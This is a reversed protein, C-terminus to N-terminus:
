SVSGDSSISKKQFVGKEFSPDRQRSVFAVVDDIEHDQSYTGQARVLQDTAPPLFLLDGSGLLKDAGGADLVTRSDVKAAVKFSIRGPLNAKIIGTIVDVSPRQTALILHIGVARSLHALRAISTEIEKAAVLMLDALEDILLIIYPMKDPIGGGDEDAEGASDVKRSNYSQINRVGARACYDYRDEMEKILWALAMATKAANTIVPCLLHPLRHFSAMEVKKPDVMILKLEDPTRSYLLSMIISNICVTKGSGTAGAILLHPMATLDAIIPTGSIDKGIALPLHLKKNRFEPSDLMERLCVLNTNVNPIEIGIAAKGPIPALIRVSKAKMTLAIDNDLAKVKGVKVGPAIQLEYRTIAPGREIGIVRSEIGFEQLTRELIASEDFNNNKIGRESLPPPVDLIDLPPLQYPADPAGETRAPFVTGTRAAGAGSPRVKKEEAKRSSAKASAAAAKTEVEKRRRLEERERRELEKKLRLEEKKRAKEREKEEKERLKEARRLDEERKIILAARALERERAKEKKRDAAATNNQTRVPRRSPTAAPSVVKKRRSIWGAIASFINRLLKVFWIFPKMETLLAFAVLVVTVLVLRTGFGGLYEMLWHSILEGWWGGFSMKELQPGLLHPSIYTQISLLPSLGAIIIIEYLFRVSAPRPPLQHPVLHSVGEASILLPIVLATGGVVLLLYLAIEAGVRGSYNLVGAGSGSNGADGPHYSIISVAIFIGIAILILGLAPSLKKPGTM